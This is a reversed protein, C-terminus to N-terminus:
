STGNLVHSNPIDSDLLNELQNDEIQRNVIEKNNEYYEIAKRLELVSLTEFRTALEGWDAGMNYVEAIEWVPVRHGRVVEKGGCVGERKEIYENLVSSM